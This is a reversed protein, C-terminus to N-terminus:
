TLPQENQDEYGSPLQPKFQASHTRAHTHPTKTRLDSFSHARHVTNVLGSARTTDSCSSLTPRNTPHISHMESSPVTATM